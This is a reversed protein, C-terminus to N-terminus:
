EEKTCVAGQRESRSSVKQVKSLLIYLLMSHEKPPTEITGM